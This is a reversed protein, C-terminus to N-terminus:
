RIQTTISMMAPDIIPKKLYLRHNQFLQFCFASLKPEVHIFFPVPLYIASFFLDGTAIGASTMEDCSNM